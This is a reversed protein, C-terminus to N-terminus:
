SRLVLTPTQGSSGFSAIGQRSRTTRITAASRPRDPRVRRVGRTSELIGDKEANEDPHNGARARRGIVRGHDRTGRFRVDRRQRMTKLRHIEASQDIASGHRCRADGHRQVRTGERELGASRSADDDSEVHESDGSGEEVADELRCPQGGVVEHDDCTM